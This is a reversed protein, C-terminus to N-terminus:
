KVNEMNLNVAKLLLASNQLLAVIDRRVVVSDKLVHDGFNVV